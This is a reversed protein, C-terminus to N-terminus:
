KGEDQRSSTGEKPDEVHTEAAPTEPTESEAVTSAMSGEAPQEPAKVEMNVATKHADATGECEVQAEPWDAFPFPKEETKCCIFLYASYIYQALSDGFCTLRKNAQGTLLTFFVQGIAVLLVVTAAVETCVVFLLVYLARLWYEASTLNKKLQHNM